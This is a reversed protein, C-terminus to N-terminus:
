RRPAADALAVSLLLERLDDALRRTTFRERVRAAGARGLAAAQEPDAILRGVADAVAEPDAPPVLLGSVGHEVYDAMGPTDTVVVARGSAMAELVATLGSCHLNPRLCTVVVATRAYEERLAIHSLEVSRRERRGHVQGTWTRSVVHLGVDAGRHRALRVGAVATDHDRHRDNGVVLVAAPDVAASTQRWFDEDVGLPLYHVREPDIGLRQRAAPLQGRSNVFVADAARLGRSVLRGPREDDTAWILGTLVPGSGPVLALPAGAREDWCLSADVPQKPRAADAWDLGGGLRRVAREPLSRGASWAELQLRGAGAGDALHHLGYPWRDPVQGRLHRRQWSAVDTAGSIHVRVRM